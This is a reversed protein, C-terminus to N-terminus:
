RRFFNKSPKKKKKAKSGEILPSDEDSRSQGAEDDRSERREVVEIETDDKEKRVIKIGNKRM